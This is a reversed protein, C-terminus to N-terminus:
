APYLDARTLPLCTTGDPLARSLLLQMVGLKNAAFAQAAGSVYLRWVRYTLDGVLAQAQNQHGELRRLWHHLTHAYHERLNEGDRVEWGATQAFWVLEWPPLLEGDPFVYRDLFGGEGWPWRAVRESPRSFSPPAQDVIGHALFLGGPRTLRFAEAFYTRMQARGVHEVMGVSVVKDFAVGPPFSRYDRVEIQVRDTLGASRLRKHALGAQELSLTIGTARVDYREAAYQVLGGWGCGIDLLTEGDDDRRLAEDEADVAGGGRGHAGGAMMARALDMAVVDAVRPILGDTAAQDRDVPVDTAEAAGIAETAPTREGFL